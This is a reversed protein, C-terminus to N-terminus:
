PCPRITKEYEPPLLLLKQKHQMKWIFNEKKSSSKIFKEAACLSLVFPVEDTPDEGACRRLTM